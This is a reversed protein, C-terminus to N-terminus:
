EDCVDEVIEVFELDDIKYTVMCTGSPKLGTVVDTFQVTKGSMGWIKIKTLVLAAPLKVWWVQEIKLGLESIIHACSKNM